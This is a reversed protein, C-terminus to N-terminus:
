LGLTGLCGTRGTREADPLQPQQTAAPDLNDTARIAGAAGTWPQDEWAIPTQGAHPTAGRWGMFRVFGTTGYGKDAGIAGPHEGRPAAGVWHHCNDMLIGDVPFRDNSLLPKVEEMEPLTELVLTLVKENLLRERNKSFSAHHWTPDDAGLGM